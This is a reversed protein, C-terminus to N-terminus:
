RRYKGWFVKLADNFYFRYNGSTEGKEVERQIRDVGKRFAVPDDEKIMQLVSDLTTNEVSALFSRDISKENYRGVSHPQEFTFGASEFMQILQMMTPYRLADYKYKSPFYENLPHRELDEITVGLIFHRGRSGTVRAIENLVEQKRVLHHFVNAMYTFDVSRSNIPLAVGDFDFHIPTVRSSIEGKKIRDRLINLQGPSQNPNSQYSKDFALIRYQLLNKSNLEKEIFETQQGSGVGLEIITLPFHVFNKDLDLHSIIFKAFGYLGKRTQLYERGLGEYSHTIKM